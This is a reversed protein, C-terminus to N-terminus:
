EHLLQLSLLRSAYVASLVEPRQHPPAELELDEGVLCALEPSWYTLGFVKVGERTVRRRIMAKSRQNQKRALLNLRALARDARTKEVFSAPIYRKETSAGTDNANLMNEIREITACVRLHLAALRQARPPKPTNV